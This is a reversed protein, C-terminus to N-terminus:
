AGLVEAVGMLVLVAVVAAVTSWVTRRTLLADVKDQPCNCAEWVHGESCKM